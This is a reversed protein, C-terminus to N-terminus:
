EQRAFGLCTVIDDYCGTHSDLTRCIIIIDARLTGICIIVLKVISCTFGRLIGRDNIRTAVDLIRYIFDKRTGVVPEYVLVEIHVWV